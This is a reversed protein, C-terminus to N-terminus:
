QQESVDIAEFKFDKENVHRVEYGKKYKKMLKLFEKEAKKKKLYYFVVCVRKEQQLKEELYDKMQRSYEDRLLLFKNKSEVWTGPVNQIDTVYIVSDKFSASFGFMYVQNTKLPKASAGLATLAVVLLLIYKISKM